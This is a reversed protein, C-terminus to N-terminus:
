DDMIDFKPSGSTPKRPPRPKRPSTSAAPKQTGAVGQAVGEFLKSSAQQVAEGVQRSRVWATFDLVAETAGAEITVEKTPGQTSGIVATIRRVSGARAGVQVPSSGLSLGSEVDRLMMGPPNTKVAVEVWGIAAAPKSPTQDPAPPPDSRTLGFGVVVAGILVLLAITIVGSAGINITLGTQTNTNQGFGSGTSRHMGSVSWGGSSSEDGAASNPNIDFQFTATGAVDVQELADRFEAADKFRSKPDNALARTIVPGFNSDLLPEPIPLRGSVHMMLCQYPNEGSVLRSGTLLEVLILGMQYVDLAPSVIHDKIYEPAMYSPTGIVSSGTLDVSSSDGRLRAIGFDIIKLKETRREPDTLVLNSPKLDRHVIGNEHALALADLTDIFLHVAREPQMAGNRRLERKLDRGVVPEMAIYPNGDVFGIDHMTVTNPHHLGAAARAERTFREVAKKKAGTAPLNMVKLAVPRDINLQTAGYVVAFGGAGLIGTIKYKEEVITGKPLLKGAPVDEEPDSDAQLMERLAKENSPDLPQTNWSLDDADVLALDSYEELGPVDAIADDQAEDSSAGQPEVGDVDDDVREKEDHSLV